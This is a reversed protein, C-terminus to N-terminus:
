ADVEYFAVQAYQRSRDAASALRTAEELRRFGPVGSELVWDQHEVSRALVRAGPRATRKIETLLRHRTPANLWDPADCLTYHTWSEPGAAGLVDFLNAHHFALDTNSRRSRAFRDQRLYPPVADPHEHNLEGAVVQWCFWNTEIPTAAVKRLHEMWVDLVDSAGHSALLRDRQTFNIGFGVLHLPSRLVARMMPGEMVPRIVRDVQAVREEVPLHMVSRLWAADAGVASRFWRLLEATLGEHHLSHEFRDWHRRWYRQIWAPLPEALRRVTREPYPSWGRGFLDYLESFSELNQAASMKLASLALHHPNIDVADVREPSRSLLGAVGCGAGTISLVRSREDVGLWQEDVETDEWLLNYVFLRSFAQQFLRDRARL